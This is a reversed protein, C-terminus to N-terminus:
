VDHEVNQFDGLGSSPASEGADHEASMTSSRSAVNDQLARLASTLAMIAAEHKDVVLELHAM